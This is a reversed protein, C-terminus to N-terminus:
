RRKHRRCRSSCSASRFSWSCRGCKPSATSAQSRGPCWSVTVTLLLGVAASTWFVTSRDAETIRKRQVLGAGMSLDSVSLVLSSFVLAMGALGYQSPTLLRALVIAALLRSVQSVGSAGITWAFGGLVRGRLDSTDTLVSGDDLSDANTTLSKTPSSLCARARPCVRGATRARFTGVAADRCSAPPAWASAGRPTTSCTPSRTASRRQPTQRRM